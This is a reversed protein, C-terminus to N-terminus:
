CCNHTRFAQKVASRVRLAPLLRFLAFVCRVMCCHFGQLAEQLNMCAIHARALTLHAEPWQLRMNPASHRNSILQSHAMVPTVLGPGVQDDLELASQAAHLADKPREGELLFQALMEYTTSRAADCTCAAEMRAIASPMDGSRALLFAEDTLNELASEGASKQGREEHPM